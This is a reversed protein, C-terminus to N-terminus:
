SSIKQQRQKFHIAIGGQWNRLPMPYWQLVQYTENALNNVRLFPQVQCHKLSFSSSLGFNALVYPPLQQTNDASAYRYGTYNLTLDITIKKYLVALYAGGTQTPIYILQKGVIAAPSGTGNTSQVLNYNANFLLTARALQKKLQIYFEAGKTDVSQINADYWFPKGIAYDPPLWTILNSIHANYVSLGATANLQDTQMKATIGLDESWGSEPLLSANGGPTWYLDNFSPLRYNDTVTSHVVFWKGIKRELGLGPTIPELASGILEERVSAGASWKFDTSQIKYSAFFTTRNQSVATPYGDATAENLTNNVGIDVSQNKALEMKDEAEVIVSHSHSLSAISAYPDYYDLFEDFYAARVTLLHQNLQLKYDAASRLSIDKQSATLDNATMSPPLNRDTTQFWFHVNLLQNTSLRIANDQILALQQM